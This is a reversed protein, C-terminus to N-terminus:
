PIRSLWLQRSSQLDTLADFYKADLPILTHIFLNFCEEVNM